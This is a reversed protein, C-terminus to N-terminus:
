KLYTGANEHRMAYVIAPYRRKWGHTRNSSLRDTLPSVRIWHPRLANWPNIRAVSGSGPNGCLDHPARAWERTCRSSRFPRFASRGPTGFHSSPVLEAGPYRICDSADATAQQFTAASIM